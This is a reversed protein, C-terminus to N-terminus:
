GLFGCLVFEVSNQPGVLDALRRSYHSHVRSSFTGCLPCPSEQQVSSATVVIADEVLVRDLRFGPLATLFLRSLLEDVM